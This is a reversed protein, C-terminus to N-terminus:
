LLHDQQLQKLDEELDTAMQQTYIRTIKGTNQWDILKRLDNM